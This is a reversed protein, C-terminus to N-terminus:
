GHAPLLDAAAPITPCGLPSLAPAHFGRIIKLTLATVDAASDIRFFRAWTIGRASRLFNSLPELIRTRDARIGDYRDSPTCIPISTPFRYESWGSVSMPLWGALV